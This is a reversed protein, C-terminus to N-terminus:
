LRHLVFAAFLTLSSGCLGGRYRRLAGYHQLSAQTSFTVWFILASQVYIGQHSLVFALQRLPSIRLMRRLAVSTAVYSLIELGTYLLVNTVTHRLKTANMDAFQAYYIRNPMHFMVALYLVKM